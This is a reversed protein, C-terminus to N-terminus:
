PPVIPPEGDQVSTPDDLMMSYSTAPVVTVPPDTISLPNMTEPDPDVRPITCFLIKDLSGITRSEAPALGIAIEITQVDNM